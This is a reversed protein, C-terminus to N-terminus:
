PFPLRYSIIELNKKKRLERVKILPAVFPISAIFDKGATNYSEENSKNHKM